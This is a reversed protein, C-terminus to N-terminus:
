KYYLRNVVVQLTDIEIPGEEQTRHLKRDVVTLFIIVPEAVTIM